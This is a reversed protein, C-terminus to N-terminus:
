AQGGGSGLSHQHLHLSLEQSIRTRATLFTSTPRPIAISRQLVLILSTLRAMVRALPDLKPKFLPPPFFPALPACDRPRLGTRTNAYTLSLSPSLVGKVRQWRQVTAPGCYPGCPWASSWPRATPARGHRHNRRVAGMSLLCIAHGM